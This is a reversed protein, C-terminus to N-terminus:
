RRPNFFQNPRLPVPSHNQIIWDVGHHRVYSELQPWWQLRPSKYVQIAHLGTLSAERCIDERDDVLIHAGASTLVPTKGEPGVPDGVVTVSRFPLGRQRLDVVLNNADEFTQKGRNYGSFSVIHFEIRGKAVEVLRIFKDQISQDFLNLANRACDLTDHWDFFVILNSSSPEERPAYFM